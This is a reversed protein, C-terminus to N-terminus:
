TAQKRNRLFKMKEQERKTSLYLVFPLLKSEERELKEEKGGPRSEALEQTYRIQKEEASDQPTIKWRSISELEDLKPALVCRPAAHHYM